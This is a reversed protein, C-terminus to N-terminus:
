LEIVEPYREELSLALDEQTQSGLVSPYYDISVSRNVLDMLGYRILQVGLV